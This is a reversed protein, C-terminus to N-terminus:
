GPSFCADVFADFGGPDATIRLHGREDRSVDLAPCFLDGAPTFFHPSGIVGRDRGLHYDALVAHVGPDHEDALDEPLSADPLPLDFGAAIEDLVAGVGIDLGREFLADRVALSVAEGTALDVGYAADALAMAPISSTPFADVDFGTFVDDGLQDRIEAVEEAIFVPDLPTGNVLELPWARVRLVVDDRGAEARRAVFRRLGVHTFPCCADAFVEIVVPTTESM